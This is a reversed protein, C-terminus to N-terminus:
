QSITLRQVVRVGGKEAIVLYVGSSLAGTNLQNHNSTLSITNLSRGTVDSLTLTGGTLNDSLNIMVVDNAPNPYLQMTASSALNEIGSIVSLRTIIISDCGFISQLTDTYNGAATVTTGSPLVLSTGSLIATDVVASYGTYVELNLILVSDCGTTTQLTDTYTDRATLSRNRWNYTEGDCISASETVEAGQLVDLHLNIISDCTSSAQLTDAYVGTAALARNHWNYAEGNCVTASENQEIAPLVQLQLTIISDCATATQLTDAYVGTASLVRSRWNYTEGNCVTANQYEEFAPLVQLQLTIISDCENATQLTDAYNGTANLTRNHWNYTEGHCIAASENASYSQLVELHLNIISDCTSVAQLTDAYDGTATLARGNFNFPTGACTTANQTQEIAQLVELHLNIISDCTSVAQLTDAYDGGTTLTRNHWNYAEGHCVTAAQNQKISPLVTLYLSVLTDCEAVAQLTDTYVGAISLNRNRWNFIEGQCITNQQSKLRAFSITNFARNTAVPPNYDFYIHAANGIQTGCNLGPLTKIRYQIYSHSKPENSVSDALYINAFNFRVKRETNYVKVVPPHSYALLQFSNIDLAADLTDIVYIDIAPATGTNQFRITYTLWQASNDIVDAPSVQKDNPDYSNVVTFCQTLHNNAPNYDSGTSTAKIDFCITQGAQATTDVAINFSISGTTITAWNSITYTLTNGNVVPILAGASRGIYTAPGAITIVLQGSVGFTNCYQGWLAAVDGAKIVVNSIRGPRTPPSSFVNQVVVDFGTKCQLAFNRVTAQSDLITITATDFGSLPCKVDFPIGTTDITTVYIGTDTDFSYIGLSGTYTQQLITDNRLLNVKLFSMDRDGNQQVCNGNVDNFTNGKINWLVRCGNVNGPDCIQKTNLAPTSNTVTGYNPVCEIAVSDFYLNTIRTLRPLCHLNPNNSCDLKGMINPLDPLWSILSNTCGLTRLGAPLAPLSDLQTRHVELRTLASPLAPLSTLLPFNDIFLENLSAPLTPLTTILPADGCQFLKLSAPLPSPVATLSAGGCYFEELGQNLPPLITISDNQLSFLKRLSAPLAPLSTLKNQRCDLIKLTPPLPPLTTFKNFLFYLSELAPPLSDVTTVQSYSINLGILSSPFSPLSTFNTSGMDFQLLGQPLAPIASIPNNALSLIQLNPPFAQIYQLGASECDLTNLNDFYQIGTLDNIPVYLLQVVYENIIDACTTDMQNGNMCAPYRNQLYTVFGADPITVWQAKSSTFACCFLILLSLHRLTKM